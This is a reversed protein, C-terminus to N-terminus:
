AAPIFHDSVKEGPSLICQVLKEAGLVSIKLNGNSRHELAVLFLPVKELDPIKARSRIMPSHLIEGTDPDMWDLTNKAHETLTYLKGIVLKTDISDEGLVRQAKQQNSSAVSSKGSSDLDM